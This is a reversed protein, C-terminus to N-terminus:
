APSPPITRGKLSSPHPSEPALALSNGKQYNYGDNRHIPKCYRYSVGEIRGAKTILDFFGTARTLVRGLHTGAKKGASIVARTLDGTQYGHHVKQRKRHRIPFGDKVGCMQRNGHGTARILLPVVQSIELHEPTSRGVCAADLWHTKPLNHRTRNYKTLSGSGTELPLGTANLREFLKWRTTNVAAADRISTQAQALIRALVEPKKTLFDRVHQNGKTQNCEQCALTLNSARDTGGRARPVIHEVQLPVQGKGCYACRRRWKELLYERLEYGMLEGQQYQVGAIEPNQMAQLDFKVLELSIARIPCLHQLRRVWTLVNAIRSELSPPLWGEDRRRNAWRPPRYRTHRRRRSRRVTGRKDLSRKISFGRHSLEAAWIVSGEADNVLALGTTQAGPDIKLRLPVPVPNPTARRMILTFPYRRYVAAEGDRLLLRARGPHVPNLPQKDTALVFVKSM